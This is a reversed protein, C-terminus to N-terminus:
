VPVYASLAASVAAACREYEFGKPVRKPRTALKERIASAIVGAWEGVSGAEFRAPSIAVGRSLCTRGLSDRPLAWRENEELDDDVAVVFIAFQEPARGFDGDSLSANLWDEIHATAESVRSGIEADTISAIRFKM